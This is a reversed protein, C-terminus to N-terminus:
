SEYEGDYPYNTVFIPGNISCNDCIEYATRLQNMLEKTTELSIHSMVPLQIKIEVPKMSKYVVKFGILNINERNFQWNLYEIGLEIDKSSVYRANSRTVSYIYSLSKM